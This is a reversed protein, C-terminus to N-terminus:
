WRVAATNSARLSSAWEEITSVGYRANSLRRSNFYEARRMQKEGLGTNRDGSVYKWSIYNKITEIVYPHVEFDNESSEIDAIYEMILTTGALINMNALYLQNTSRSLRFYGIVNNGGNIGFQASNYLGYFIGSYPMGSFPDVSSSTNPYSIQVGCDDYIPLLNISSDRGLSHIRGDAGLIGIKSYNLFDNPLDVTDNNNIALAVIKVVGNIDMNMERLCSLAITYLRSRQNEPKGNEALWESVISDLTYAM